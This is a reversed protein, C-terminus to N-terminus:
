CVFKCLDPHVAGEGIKEESMGAPKSPLVVHISEPTDQVVKIKAGAPVDIGAEALVEHPASVLRSRYTDDSWARAIVKGMKSRAENGM